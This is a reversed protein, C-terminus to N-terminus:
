QTERPEVGSYLDLKPPRPPARRLGTEDGDFKGYMRENNRVRLPPSPADDQIFLNMHKRYPSYRYPQRGLIDLSLHSCRSRGVAM